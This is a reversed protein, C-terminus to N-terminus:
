LRLIALALPVTAFLGIIGLLPSFLFMSVVIVLVMGIAVLKQALSM